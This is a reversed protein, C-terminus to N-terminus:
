RKGGFEETGAPCFGSGDHVDLRLGCHECMQHKQSVKFDDLDTEQILFQGNQLVLKPLNIRARLENILPLIKVTSLNPVKSGDEDGSWIMETASKIEHNIRHLESGDIYGHSYNKWFLLRFFEESIRKQEMEKREILEKVEEFDKDEM